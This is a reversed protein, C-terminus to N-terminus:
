GYDLCRLIEGSVTTGLVWLGRLGRPKLNLKNEPTSTSSSQTLKQGVFVPALTVASIVDALGIQGTIEAPRL